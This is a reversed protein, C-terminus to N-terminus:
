NNIRNRLNVCEEYSTNPNNKNNNIVFTYAKELAEFPTESYFEFKWCERINLLGKPPENWTTCIFRPFIDDSINELTIFCKIFVESYDSNEQYAILKEM